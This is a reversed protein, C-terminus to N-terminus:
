WGREEVKITQGVESGHYSVSEVEGPTHGRLKIPSEDDALTEGVTFVKTKEGNSCMGWRDCAKDLTTIM